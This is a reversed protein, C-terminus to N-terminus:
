NERFIHLILMSSANARSKSLSLNQCMKRLFQFLTSSLIFLLDWLEKLLLLLLYNRSSSSSSFSSYTSYCLLYTCSPFNFKTGSPRSAFALHWSSIHQHKKHKLCDLPCWVLLIALVQISLITPIYQTNVWVWSTQANPCHDSILIVSGM